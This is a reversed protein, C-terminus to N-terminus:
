FVIRKAEPELLKYGRESTAYGVMIAEGARLDLKDMARKSIRYWCRCGFARLHSVNPKSGYWMQYPTFAAPLVRTTVRNHIYSAFTAAEAWLEKELDEHKLISGVLDIMTRNLREAVSNEWPNDPITLDHEIVREALYDKFEHNVYEGGNDSRM